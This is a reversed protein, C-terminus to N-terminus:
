ALSALAVDLEVSEALELWVAVALVFVVVSVFVTVCGACLRVTVAVVVTEVGPWVVAIVPLLVVTATVGMEVVALSDPLPTGQHPQTRIPSPMTPTAM